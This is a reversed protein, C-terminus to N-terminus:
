ATASCRASIPACPRSRMTTGPRCNWYLYQRRVGSREPDVVVPPDDARVRRADEHGVGLHDAGVVSGRPRNAKRMVVNGAPDTTLMIYQKEYENYQVSIEGVSPYTTTKVFGFFGSSTTGPLVPKAASPTARSGRRGTGTNYKSADLIDDQKVRSLYVTGGRGSPTGYAYVWGAQADASGQRRSSSPSSSSTRTARSTRSPRTVRRPPASARRRSM